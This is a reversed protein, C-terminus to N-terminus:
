KTGGEEKQSAEIYIQRDELTIWAGIAMGHDRVIAAIAHACKQLLATKENYNM